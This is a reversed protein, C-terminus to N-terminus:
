KNTIWQFAVKGTNTDTIVWHAAGVQVAKNRIHLLPEGGIFVGIILCGAGILIAPWDLDWNKM